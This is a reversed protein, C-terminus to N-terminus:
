RLHHSANASRSRALQLASDPGCSQPSRSCAARSIGQACRVRARVFRLRLGIDSERGILDGCKQAEAAAALLAGAIVRAIAARLAPRSVSASHKMRLTTAPDISAIPNRPSPLRNVAWMVHFKTMRAARTMTPSGAIREHMRDTGTNM